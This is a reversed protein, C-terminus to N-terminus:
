MFLMAISAILASSILLLGNINISDASNNSNAGPPQNSGGTAPAYSIAVGKEKCVAVANNLSTELNGYGGTTPCKTALCTRVNTWSTTCVTTNQTDTFAVSAENQWATVVPNCDVFCSDLTPTPPLNSGTGTTSPPPIVLPVSHTSCDNIFATVSDDWDKKDQASFFLDCHDRLCVVYNIYLQSCILAYYNEATPQANAWSQSWAVAENQCSTYCEYGTVDASTPTIFSLSFLCLISLVFLQNQM